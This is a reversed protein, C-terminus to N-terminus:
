SRRRSGKPPRMRGDGQSQHTRTNTADSISAPALDVGPSAVLNADTERPAVVAGDRGAASATGNATFAAPGGPAAAGQPVASGPLSSNVQPAPPTESPRIAERAASLLRDIAAFLLEVSYGGLFALLAPTVGGPISKAADGTFFWQLGIGSLTGLFVRAVLEPLRSPDFSRDVMKAYITRLIYACTGLAGYLIPLVYGGIMTGLPVVVNRLDAEPFIFIWRALAKYGARIKDELDGQRSSLLYVRAKLEDQQKLIGERLTNADAAGGLTGAAAEQRAVAKLSLDASRLDDEVKSLSTQMDTVVTIFTRTWEGIGILILLALALVGFWTSFVQAQAFPQRGFIRSWVGPRGYRRDSARLTHATVPSMLTSLQSYASFFAIRDKQAVGTKARTNEEVRLIADIIEPRIKKSSEIAYSLLECAQRVLDNFADADGLCDDKPLWRQFVSM